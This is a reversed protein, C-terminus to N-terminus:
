EEKPMLTSLEDMIQSLVAKDSLSHNRAVIKLAHSAGAIIEIQSNKFQKNKSFSIVHSMVEEESSIPNAKKYVLAANAGAIMDIGRKTMDM